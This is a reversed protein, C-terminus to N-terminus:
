VRESLSLLDDRMQRSIAEWTKQNDPMELLQGYDKREVVVTIRKSRELLLKVMILFWGFLLFFILPTTDEEIEFWILIVPLHSKKLLCGAGSRVDTRIRAKGKLGRNVEQWQKGKPTRGGEIEIALRQGEGLAKIARLLVTRDNRRNRVPISFPAILPVMRVINAHPLSKPVYRLANLLSAPFSRFFFILPILVTELMSPHNSVVILSGELPINEEGKIEIKGLRRLILFPPSLIIVFLLTLPWLAISKLLELPKTKRWDLWSLGSLKLNESKM